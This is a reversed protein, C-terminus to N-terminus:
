GGFLRTSILRTEYMSRLINSLMQLAQQQQQLVDKLDVNGAQVAISDSSAITESYTRASSSKMSDTFAAKGVSDQASASVVSLAVLFALVAVVAKILSGRKRNNYLPSL